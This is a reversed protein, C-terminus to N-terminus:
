IAWAKGGSLEQLDGCPIYEGPVPLYALLTTAIEETQFYTGIISSKLSFYANRESPGEDEAMEAKPVDEGSMSMKVPQKKFLEDQQQLYTLAAASDLNAFGGENDADMKKMLTNLGTRFEDRAKITYVEGVMKDMIQPVGVEVASPYDDKPLMTGAMTSIFAYESDSFFGPKFDDAM